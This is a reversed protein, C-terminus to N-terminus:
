GGMGFKEEGWYVKINSADFIFIGTGIKAWGNLIQYKINVGKCSFM